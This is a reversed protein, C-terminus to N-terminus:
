RWMEETVEIPSGHGNAEVEDPEPERRGRWRRRQPEQESRYGWAYYYGYGGYSKAKSPDLNNYIGGVIRAGVQELQERVQALASRTTSSADAVIIVGDVMTAIALADSVALVPPTDLLVFDAAGRLEVPLNRMRESGLLEAPNQPTTGSPMVRLSDIGCRQAAQLPSARGDLLDSLGRTNELGFFRHLRPKRLDCSLAVVRKGAQALSVALNATTATKGEGLHASTIAVVRVDETQALFQMNTRLTRYAEAAPGMHADRTVLPTANRKRWGPVSPVVALVPSGIEAELDSKGVTRDDLRERLFAVGVGLGLGLVLGLVGDRIPKPSAPTLPLESPAVIETALDYPKPKAALQANLDALEFRIEDIEAELAARETVTAGVLSATKERLQRTRDTIQEKLEAVTAAYFANARERRDQKYAEAYARAWQQSAGPAPDTYTFVLTTTETPITVELEGTQELVGAQESMERAAIQEIIPSEARALETQMSSLYAAGLGMLVQNPDFPNVAVTASSEYLPTQRLSFFVASGLTIITILLVSWKRRRLISLLERLDGDSPAAQLPQAGNMGMPPTYGPRM